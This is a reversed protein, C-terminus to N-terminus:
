LNFELQLGDYSLYCGQPLSQEIAYDVSHSLHMFYLKSAQTHSAFTVAEQFSLHMLSGQSDLAGIILTEIGQLYTYITPDFSKIDTVYALTGIRFGTVQKHGQYYSFYTIPIQCINTTGAQSPLIHFDLQATFSGQQPTFLYDYRKELAEYTEQSLLIPLRQKSYFYFIRLEDLGAIHDFHSHTLLVAELHNIQHRLAQARFDPGVDVLLHADQIKLLISPRLRKNKPDCSSCVPCSCGILPTGGSSGTGLFLVSAQIFM